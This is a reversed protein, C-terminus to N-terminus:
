SVRRRCHLLALSNLAHPSLRAALALTRAALWNGAAFLRMFAPNATPISGESKMFTVTAALTLLREFISGIGASAVVDFGITALTSKLAQLDYRRFHGVIEDDRGWYYRHLPVTLILDGNPRLVRHLERLALDDREVHELVESCVVTPVSESRIGITTVDLVVTRFGADRAVRMAALSNDGLIAGTADPVMPSIGSGVDLVPGTRGALFPEVASKRLRYNFLYNKCQRYNAKEFFQAFRSDV